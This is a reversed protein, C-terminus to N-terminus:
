PWAWEPAVRGIVREAQPMQGNNICASCLPYSSPPWVHSSVSHCAAVTLSEACLASAGEGDQGIGTRGVSRRAEVMTPKGDLDQAHALITHLFKRVM